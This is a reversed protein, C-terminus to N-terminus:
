SASTRKSWVLVRQQWPRHKWYVHNLIIDAPGRLPDQNAELDEPSVPGPTVLLSDAEWIACFWKCNMTSKNLPLNWILERVNVAKDQRSVACPAMQTKGHKYLPIYNGHLDSFFPRRSTQHRAPNLPRSHPASNRMLRIQHSGLFKIHKQPRAQGTQGRGPGWVSAHHWWLQLHQALKHATCAHEDPTWTHDTGTGAGYRLHDSSSGSPHPRETRM